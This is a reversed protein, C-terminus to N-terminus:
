KMPAAGSARLRKRVAAQLDPPLRAVDAERYGYRGCDTDYATANADAAALVGNRAAVAANYTEVEADHKDIRANHAEVEAKRRRNVAADAKTLATANAEIALKQQDIDRDIAAIRATDEGM